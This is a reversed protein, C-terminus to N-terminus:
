RAPTRVPKCQGRVVQGRYDYPEDKHDDFERWQCLTAGKAARRRAEDLIQQFRPDDPNLHQGKELKGNIQRKVCNAEDFENVSTTFKDVLWEDWGRTDKFHPRPDPLLCRTAVSVAADRMQQPTIPPEAASNKQRDPM